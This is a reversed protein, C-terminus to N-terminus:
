LTVIMMTMMTMMMMMEDRGAIGLFAFNWSISIHMAGCAHIFVPEFSRLSLAREALAHM